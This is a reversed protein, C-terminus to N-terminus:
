NLALLWYYYNIVRNHNDAVIISFVLLWEGYILTVSIVLLLEV